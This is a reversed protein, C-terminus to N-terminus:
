WKSVSAKYGSRECPATTRGRNKVAINLLERVPEIDFTTIEPNARTLYALARGTGGLDLATRLDMQDLFASIYGLAIYHADNEVLPMEDYRDATAAYYGRQIAEESNTALRSM